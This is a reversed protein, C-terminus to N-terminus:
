VAERLPVQNFVLGASGIGQRSTTHPSDDETIQAHNLDGHDPMGNTAILLRILPIVAVRWRMM